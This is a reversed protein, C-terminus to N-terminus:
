GNGTYVVLLHSSMFMLSLVNNGALMISGEWKREKEINAQVSNM